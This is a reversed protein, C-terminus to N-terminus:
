KYGAILTILYYNFFPILGLYLLILWCKKLTTYLRKRKALHNSKTWHFVLVYMCFPISIITISSLIEIALTSLQWTAFFDIMAIVMKLVTLIICVLTALLILLNLSNNESNTSKM